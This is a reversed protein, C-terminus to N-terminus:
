HILKVTKLIEWKGTLARDFVSDRKKNNSV